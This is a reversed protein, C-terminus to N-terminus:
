YEIIRGTHSHVISSRTGQSVLSTIMEDMSFLNQQVANQLLAVVSQESIDSNHKLAYASRILISGATQSM